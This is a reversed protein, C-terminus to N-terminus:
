RVPSIVVPMAQAQSDRTGVLIQGKANVSLVKFFGNRIFPLTSPADILSALLVPAGSVFVHPEEGDYLWKTFVVLGSDDIHVGFWDTPRDRREFPSVVMQGDKWRFVAYAYQKPQTSADWWSLIGAVEGAANIARCSVDLKRDNAPPMIETLQGAKWIYCHGTSSDDSQEGNFTVDSRYGNLTIVDSDNIATPVLHSIGPPPSIVTRQGNKFMMAQLYVANPVATLGMMTGVRNQALVGSDFATPLLTYVGNRVTALRSSSEPATYQYSTPGYNADTKGAKKALAVLLTNDDTFGQSWTSTNGGYRTIVKPVGSTWIVPSVYITDIYVPLTPVLFPFPNGGTEGKMWRLVKGASQNVWGSVEGRENIYRPQSNQTKGSIVVPKLQTTIAYKGPLAQAQAGPPATLVLGMAVSCVLPRLRWIFTHTV